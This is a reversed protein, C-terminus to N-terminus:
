TLRHKWWNELSFPVCGGMWSYYVVGQGCSWRGEVSIEVSPWSKWEGVEWSVVLFFHVWQEDVLRGVSSWSWGYSLTHIDLM